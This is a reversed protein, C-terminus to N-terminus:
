RDRHSPPAGQWTNRQYPDHPPVEASAVTTSGGPATVNDMRMPPLTSPTPGHQNYSPARFTPIAATTTRPMNSLATADVQGDTRRRRPPRELDERTAERYIGQPNIAPRRTLRPSPPGQAVNRDGTTRVALDRFRDREGRYFDREQEIMGLKRELQRKDEELTRNHSELKGIQTNAEREKEKRRQRFRASAGANRARKEDALKSASSADVPVQYTGDSTSFTMLQYNSSSQPAPPGSVSAISPRYSGETGMQRMESSSGAQNSISFMSGAFYSAAQGPPQSLSHLVSPSAQSPQGYSSYSTSPSTTQSEMAQSSAPMMGLSARRHLVDTAAPAPSYGPYNLPGSVDPPERGRESAYGRDRTPLPPPQQYDVSETRGRGLSAARPSKPTLMRRARPTIANYSETTSTGRPSQENFNPPAPPYQAGPLQPAAVALPPLRGLNRYGPQDAGPSRSDMPNLITHMGLVRSSGGMRPENGPIATSQEQGINFPEPHQLPAQVQVNEQQGRLRDTQGSDQGDDRLQVPPLIRRQADSPSRSAPPASPRQSM